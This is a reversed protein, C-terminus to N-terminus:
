SGTDTLVAETDSGIQIEVLLKAFSGAAYTGVSGLLWAVLPIVVMTCAAREM